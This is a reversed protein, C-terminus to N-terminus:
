TAPPVHLTEPCCSDGSLQHATVSDPVSPKPSAGHGAHSGDEDPQHLRSEQAWTRERGGGEPQVPSSNSPSYSGDVFDTPQPLCQQSDVQNLLLRLALEQFWLFLFQAQGSPGQTGRCRRQLWVSLLAWIGHSCQLCDVLSFQQLLKSVSAEWWWSMSTWCKSCPVPSESNQAICSKLSFEKNSQLAIPWIPKSYISYM